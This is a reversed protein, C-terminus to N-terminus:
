DEKNKNIEEIPTAHQIFDQDPMGYIEMTYGAANLAVNCDDFQEKLGKVITELQDTTPKVVAFQCLQTHLIEGGKWVVAAYNYTKIKKKVMPEKEKQKNEIFVM